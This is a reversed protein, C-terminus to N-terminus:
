EPFEELIERRLEEKKLGPLFIREVGNENGVLGMWGLPVKFIIFAKEM